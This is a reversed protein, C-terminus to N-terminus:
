RAFASDKNGSRDRTRLSMHETNASSKRQLNKIQVSNQFLVNTFSPFCLPSLTGLFKTEPKQGGVLFVDSHFLSLETQKRSRKNPCTPTGCVSTEIAWEMLWMVEEELRPFSSKVSGWEQGSCIVQPQTHEPFTILEDCFLSHQPCHLVCFHFRSGARLSNATLSSILYFMVFFLLFM